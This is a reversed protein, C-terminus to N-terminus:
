YDQIVAIEKSTLDHTEYFRKVWITEKGYDKIIDDESGRLEGQNWIGLIGGGDDSIQFERSIDALDGGNVEIFNLLESMPLYFIKFPITKVFSSSDSENFRKIRM